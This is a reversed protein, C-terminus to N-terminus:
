KSVPKRKKASLYAALTGAGAANSSFQGPTQIKSYYPM